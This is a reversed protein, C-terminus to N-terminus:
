KTLDIERYHKDVYSEAEPIVIGEQACFNLVNQIFESTESKSLDALSRSVDKLWSKKGVVVKIKYSLFMPAFVNKHIEDRTQYHQFENCTLCVGLICGFYYGFQNLSPRKHKEKLIIEFEKGALSMRQDNWLDLHYFYPNGNESMKGFHKVEVKM